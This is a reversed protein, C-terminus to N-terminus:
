PEFEKRFAAAWYQEVQSAGIVVAINKTAPAIQLIDEVFGPLDFNEGIFAANKELADPPLRRRDMGTYLIPTKPFLRDRYQASRLNLRALPGPQIGAFAATVNAVPSPPALRNVRPRRQPAIGPGGTESFEWGRCQFPDVAKVERHALSLDSSCVDSSWDRRTIEYATKQKFFFFCGGVM